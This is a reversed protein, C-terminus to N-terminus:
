HTSHRKVLLNTSNHPENNKWHQANLPDCIYTPDAFVFVLLSDHCTLSVFKVADLSHASVSSIDENEIIGIIMMFWLDIM